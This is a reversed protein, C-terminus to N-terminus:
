KHDGFLAHFVFLTIGWLVIVAIVDGPGSIM